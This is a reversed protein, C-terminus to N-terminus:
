LKAVQARLSELKKLKNLYIQEKELIEIQEDINDENVPDELDNEMNVGNLESATDASTNLSKKPRGRGRCRSKPPM